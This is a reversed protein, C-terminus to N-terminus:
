CLEGELICKIEFITNTIENFCNIQYNAKIFISLPEINVSLSKTKCLYPVKYSNYNLEFNSTTNEKLNFSYSYAGSKLIRLSNSPLISISTTVKQGEYIEDYLIRILNGSKQVSGILEQTQIDGNSSIKLHIKSKQFFM